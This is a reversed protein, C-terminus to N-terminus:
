PTAISTVVFDTRCLLVSFPAGDFCEASAPHDFSGRITVWADRPPASLGAATEGIWPLHDASGAWEGEVPRLITYGFDCFAERDSLPQCVDSAAESPPPAPLWGTLTLERSGVCALLELPPIAAYTVDALEIPEQPCDTEAPVLWPGARDGAPVWGVQEAFLSYPSTVAALYWEYGDAQVPGDILYVSTFQTNPGLLLNPCPGGDGTCPQIVFDSQRGPETRVVVSDAVVTAM